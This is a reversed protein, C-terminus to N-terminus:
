PCLAIYKRATDAFSLDTRMLCRRRLVDLKSLMDDFEDLPAGCDKVLEVTGGKPNHCVPVGSLMAEVVTNPCPDNESPFYLCKMRHYLKPLASNPVAGALEANPEKDFPFGSKAHNGVLLFREEPHRRITELLLDLRKKGGVGWTVHGVLKGEEPVPQFLSTDGGNLIIAHNEPEGLFPHMNEFVFRSQYVTADAFANLEKIVAHKARRNDDEDPEVHEDLRHIVFTGASKARELEEVSSRNAVIVAFDAHEVRFVQHYEEAHEALWKAFNATFTNTGGGSKSPFSLFVNRKGEGRRSGLTAALKKLSHLM